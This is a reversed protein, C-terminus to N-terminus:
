TWPLQTRRHWYAAPPEAYRVLADLDSRSLDLELARLNSELQARTSAGSLAVDCWPQALAAAIAVADNTAGHAAGIDGPADGRGPALRGNAMTEKVIVGVGDAHAEQLAPGSSPELINWTAQISSFLPVGDRTVERLRRIADTQQPGTVSAGISVGFETRIQHLRNLLADDEFIPADATISHVQYLDLYSWLVMRSAEWQRDLTPLDLSKVEHVEADTKWDAVYTYGWKSGVCMDGPELDRQQLWDRVFGEAQGYSRAADVYRIGHSRAIDLLSFTRSAMEQVSRGEPFDLGRGLNMYGPRGLAATGLGIRSVTLDTNGLTRQEM